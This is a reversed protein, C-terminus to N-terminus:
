QNEKSLVLAKRANEEAELANIGMGIGMNISMSFKNKIENVMPIDEYFNTYDQFIGKTILVIFEDGDASSVVSAQYIRSYDLLEQYLSLRKEKKELASLRKGNLSYDKIDVIMIIIQNRKALRTESASEIFRFTEEMIIKTPMTKFVPIRHKKLEEYVSNISTVAGETKGDEYLKKHFEVYQERSYNSLNKDNVYLSDYFVEIERYVEEIESRRLTDISIKSININNHIKMKFLVRYLASGIIPYYFLQKKTLQNQITNYYPLFGTFLFADVKDEWKKIYDLTDNEDEYPIGVTDISDYQKGMEISENVLDVPGI